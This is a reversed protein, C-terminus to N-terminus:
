SNRGSPSAGPSARPSRRRTSGSTFRAGHIDGDDVEQRLHRIVIAVEGFGDCRPHIFEAQVRGAKLALRGVEVVNVELARRFERVLQAAGRDARPAHALDEPRGFVTQVPQREEFAEAAVTGVHDVDLPQGHQRGRGLHFGARDVAQPPHADRDHVGHMVVQRVIGAGAEQFEVLAQVGRDIVEHHMGGRIVPAQDLVEGDRFGFDAQDRLAWGESCFLM